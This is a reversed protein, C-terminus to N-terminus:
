LEYLFCENTINKIKTFGASELVQCEFDNVAFSNLKAIKYGRNKKLKIYKNLANSMKEISDKNQYGDKLVISNVNLYTIKNKTYDLIDEENFNDYLDNSSIMDDYIKKPINICNIYGIIENKDKVLIYSNKEKKYLKEMVDINWQCGKDYFSKDLIHLKKMTDKSIYTGIVTYVDGRRLFKSYGNFVISINSLVLLADTFAVIYDLYYMDYFIWMSNSVIGCYVATKKNKLIAVGDILSAIIPVLVLISDESLFGIVVYIPITFIFIYKDKDTKYYLIEKVLEFFSVFLGTWAGLLGYNVCYLLSSIMQLFIIGNLKKSHYSCLFFIWAIIGIIQAIAFVM